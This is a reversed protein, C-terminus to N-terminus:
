IKKDLVDQALKLAYGEFTYIDKFGLSQVIEESDYYWDMGEPWKNGLAAWALASAAEEEVDYPDELIDEKFVKLQEPTLNLKNTFDIKSLTQKKKQLLEIQKQLAAIQADVSEDENLMSEYPPPSPPTFYTAGQVAHDIDANAYSIWDPVEGESASNWFNDDFAFDKPPRVGGDTPGLVNYVAFRVNDIRREKEKDSISEDRNIRDIADEMKSRMRDIIQNENLMSKYQGETIIGALMQMRFTEKNM